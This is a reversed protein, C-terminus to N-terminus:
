RSPLGALWVTPSWVSVMGGPPPTTASSVMGSAPLYGNTVWEKMSALMPAVPTMTTVCYSESGNSWSTVGTLRESEYADRPRAIPLHLSCCDQCCNLWLLQNDCTVLFTFETTLVQRELRYRLSCPQHFLELSLQCISIHDAHERCDVLQSGNHLSGQRRHPSPSSLSHWQQLRLQGSATPVGTLLLAVSTANTVEDHYSAHAIASIRRDRRM